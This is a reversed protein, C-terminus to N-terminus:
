PLDLRDRVDRRGDHCLCLGRQQDDSCVRGEGSDPSRHVRGQAFAPVVVADAQQQLSVQAPGLRGKSLHHRNVRGVGVPRHVHGPRPKLFKRMVRECDHLIGKPQGTSGSTFVILGATRRDRFSVVLENDVVGGFKELSWQDDATFRFLHSVGAIEMLQPMEHEVALTFPVIIADIRMLAFMLACTEPSYDGFVGCVTGRGIEEDGLRGVWDDILAFFRDYSIEQDRWRMAPGPGNEAMRAMVTTVANATGTTM